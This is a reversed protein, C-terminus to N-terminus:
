SAPISSSWHVLLFHHHHHHCYHWGGLKQLAAPTLPLLQCAVAAASLSTCAPSLFPLLSPWLNAAQEGELCHLTGSSGLGERRPPEWSLRASMGVQAPPPTVASKKFTDISILIWVPQKLQRGSIKNKQM